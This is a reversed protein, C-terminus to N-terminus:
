CSLMSTSSEICEVKGCLPSAGFSDVPAHEVSEGLLGLAGRDCFLWASALATFVDWFLVVAGVGVGLALVGFLPPPAANLGLFAANVNTLRLHREEHQSCSVDERLVSVRLWKEDAPDRLPM